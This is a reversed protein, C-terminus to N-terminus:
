WLRYIVADLYICSSIYTHPPLPAILRPTQRCFLMGSLFALLREEYTSLNNKCLASTESQKSVHTAMNREFRRIRKVTEGHWRWRRRTPRRNGVWEDKCERKNVKVGEMKGEMWIVRMQKNKRQLLKWHGVIWTFRLQIINQLTKSLFSVSIPCLKNMM